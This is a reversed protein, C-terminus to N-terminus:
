GSEAGSDGNGGRYSSWDEAIYIVSGKGVGVEESAATRIRFEMNTGFTTRKAVSGFRTLSVVVNEDCYVQVDWNKWILEVSKLLM